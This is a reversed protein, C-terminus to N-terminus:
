ATWDLQQSTAQNSVGGRALWRHSRGQNGCSLKITKAVFGQRVIEGSRRNHPLGSTELHTKALNVEPNVVVKRIVMLPQSKQTNEKIQSLSPLKETMHSVVFFNRLAQIKCNSSVQHKLADILSLM